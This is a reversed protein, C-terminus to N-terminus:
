EDGNDTRDEYDAELWDDDGLRSANEYQETLPGEDPDTDPEPFAYEPHLIVDAPFDGAEWVELTDTLEYGPQCFEQPDLEPSVIVVYSGGDSAIYHALIYPGLQSLPAQEYEFPLLPIGAQAFLWTVKEKLWEIDADRNFITRRKEGRPIENWDCFEDPKQDSLAYASSDIELTVIQEGEWKWNVSGLYECPKSFTGSIMKIGDWGRPHNQPTCWVQFGASGAEFIASPEPNTVIDFQRALDLIPKMRMHESHYTM